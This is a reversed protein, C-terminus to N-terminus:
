SVGTAGHRAPGGCRGGRCIASHPSAHASFTHIRRSFFLLALANAGSCSRPISCPSVAFIRLDSSGFFRLLSDRQAARRGKSLSLTTGLLTSPRGRELTRLM